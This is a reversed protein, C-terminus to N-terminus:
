VLASMRVRILLDNIAARTSEDPAEPLKSGDQSAQLEVRLREYEVRYFAVDADNLTTNEGRMKREILNPIYPLRYEANLVNLNAEVRGTRMLHIGTLLVRFVYLLPKVRRPSEKLFLNSQTEAFGFYHHSHHRTIVGAGKPGSRALSLLEDHEPTGLVVM